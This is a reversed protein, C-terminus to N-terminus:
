KEDNNGKMTSNYFVLRKRGILYLYNAIIFILFLYPSNILFSEYVSLIIMLSMTPIISNIFEFDARYFFKKIKSLSLISNIFYAYLLIFGIIGSDALTTYLIAVNYAGVGGQKAKQVNQINEYSLPVPSKQFQQIIHYKTMGSGVGTIPHKLFIYFTNIYSCVRAYLSAEEIAFKDFDTFSSVTKQIRSVTKTEQVSPTNYILFAFALVLLVCVKSTKSKSLLFYFTTILLGIVITIPSLTTILNILALPVISYKVITNLYKNKFIKYKTKAINYIFWLNTNLFYGYYGPETFVSQNRGILHRTNGSILSLKNCIFSEIAEIPTIHLITGLYSIIGWILILWIAFVIFKYITKINVYKMLIAPYTSYFVYYGIIIVIISYLVRSISLQGTILLILDAVICWIIFYIFYKFPTNKYLKYVTNTVKKLNFVCIITLFIILALNYVPFFTSLSGGPVCFAPLFLFFLPILLLPKLKLM